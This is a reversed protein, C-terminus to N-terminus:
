ACSATPRTKALEDRSTPRTRTPSCPRSPPSSADEDRGQARIFRPNLVVKHVRDNIALTMFDRDVIEGRSAPLKYSRLQQRNGQEAYAEHQDIAVRRPRSASAPSARRRHRPRRRQRPPPRRAPRQGDAAPPCHKGLLSNM